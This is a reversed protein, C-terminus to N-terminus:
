PEDSEHAPAAPARGCRSRRPLAFRRTARRARAASLAGYAERIIETAEAYETQDFRSAVSLLDRLMSPDDKARKDAHYAMRYMRVGIGDWERNM